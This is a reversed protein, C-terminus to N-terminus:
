PEHTSQALRELVDVRAAKQALVICRVRQQQESAIAAERARGLEDLRQLSCDLDQVLHASPPLVVGFPVSEMGLTSGERVAAHLLVRENLWAWRGSLRGSCVGLRLKRRALMALVLAGCAFPSHFGAPLSRHQAFSSMLPQLPRTRLMDLIAHAAGELNSTAEEGRTACCLEPPACRDCTSCVGCRAAVDPGVTEALLANRRCGPLLLVRLVACLDDLAHETGVVEEPSLEERGEAPLAVLAATQAFLLASMYFLCWSVSGKRGARGMEQALDRPSPPFRGSHLVARVQRPLEIGMGLSCTAVLWVVEGTRVAELSSDNDAVTQAARELAAQSSQSGKSRGTTGKYGAATHGEAGFYQNIAAVVTDVDRKFTVYIIGCWEADDDLVSAVDLFARLAACTCRAAVNTISQFPAELAANATLVMMHLNARAFDTPEPMVLEHDALGCTDALKAIASVPWTATTAIRLPTQPTPLCLNERRKVRQRDIQELRARVEDFSPRWLRHDRLVHAEDYTYSAVDVLSLATRLAANSALSEPTLYAFRLNSDNAIAWALSSRPVAMDEWTDLELDEADDEAAPPAFLENRLGHLARGEGGLADLAVQLDAVQSTLLARLPSIVVRLGPEALGPLQFALSKGLGTPALVFMDRRLLTHALVEGQFRRLQGGGLHAHATRRWRYAQEHLPPLPVPAEASSGEGSVLYSVMQDWTPTEESWCPPLVTEPKVATPPTPGADPVGASLNLGGKRVRVQSLPPTLQQRAEEPALVRPPSLM